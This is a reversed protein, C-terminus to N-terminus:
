SIKIFTPITLLGEVYNSIVILNDLNDNMFEIAMGSPEGTEGSPVPNVYIVHGKISISKGEFLPISVTVESGVSYPSERLIYIGKESLTESRLWEGTGDHTVMVTGSFCVRLHDRQYGHPIYLCRQLVEHMERLSIPMNLYADAGLALCEDRFKESAESSVVAVPLRATSGNEKLVSLAKGCDIGTIGKDIFIMDPSSEKVVLLIDSVSRFSVVQFGMKRLQISMLLIYVNSDDPIMIVKKNMFM